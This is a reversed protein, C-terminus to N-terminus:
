LICHTQRVECKIYSSLKTAFAVLEIKNIDSGQMICFRGGGGRPFPYMKFAAPIYTLQPKFGGLRQVFGRSVKLVMKLSSGSVGVRVM